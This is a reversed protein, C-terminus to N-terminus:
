YYAVLFPFALTFKFVGKKSERSSSPQRQGVGIENADQQRQGQGGPIRPTFGESKGNWIWFLLPLHRM